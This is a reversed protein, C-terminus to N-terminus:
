CGAPAFFAAQFHGTEKYYSIKCFNDPDAAQFREALAPFKAFSEAEEGYMKTLAAQITRYAPM